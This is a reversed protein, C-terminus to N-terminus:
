VLNIYDIIPVYKFPKKKKKLQFIKKPIEPICIYGVFVM